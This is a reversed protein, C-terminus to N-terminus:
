QLNYIEMIKANAKQNADLVKKDHEEIYLVSKYYEELIDWFEKIQKQHKTSEQDLSLIHELINQLNNRINKSFTVIEIINDYSLNLNKLMLSLTQANKGKNNTIVTFNYSLENNLTLLEDALNSLNDGQTGFQSAEIALANGISDLKNKTIEFQQIYIEENAKIIKINEQM